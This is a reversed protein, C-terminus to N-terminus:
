ISCPDLSNLPNYRIRKSENLENSGHEIENNSKTMCELLLDVIIVIIIKRTNIV